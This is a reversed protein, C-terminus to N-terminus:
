CTTSLPMSTVKETSLTSVHTKELGSTWTSAKRVVRELGKIGRGREHFLFSVSPADVAVGITEGVLALLAALGDGLRNNLSEPAFPM